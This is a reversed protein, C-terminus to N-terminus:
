ENIEEWTKFAKILEKGADDFHTNMWELIHKYCQRDCPPYLTHRVAPNIDKQSCCNCRNYYIEDVILSTLAEPTMERIIHSFNSDWIDGKPM